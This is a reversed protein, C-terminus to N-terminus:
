WNAVSKNFTDTIINTVPVRIANPNNNISTPDQDANFDAYSQFTQEFDQKPDKTNTFRVRVQITLRNLGAQTVGNTNQIAAPAFDFGIIQGEFQLDGDRPVLKLTTNRQYFDKFDETFRQSIYAPGNNATNQFTQVSFTKVSPDINTGTFSYVSCGALFPVLTLVVLWAALHKCNNWIM